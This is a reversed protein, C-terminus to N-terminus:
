TQRIIDLWVYKLEWKLLSRPIISNNKVCMVLSIINDILKGGLSQKHSDREIVLVNGNSLLHWVLSEDFMDQRFSPLRNLSLFSFAPIAENSSNNLDIKFNKIKKWKLTLTSQVCCVRLWWLFWWPRLQSLPPVESNSLMSVNPIYWGLPEAHLVFQSQCCLWNNNTHINEKWLSYYWYLYTQLLFNDGLGRRKFTM